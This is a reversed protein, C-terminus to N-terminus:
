TNSTETKVQQNNLADFSDIIAQYKGCVWVNFTYVCANYAACFLNFTALEHNGVHIAYLTVISSAVVCPTTVYNRGRTSWLLRNEWYEKTYM